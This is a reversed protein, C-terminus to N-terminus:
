RAKQVSAPSLSLRWFCNARRATASVVGEEEALEGTMETGGDGKVEAGGVANGSGVGVERGVPLKGSM